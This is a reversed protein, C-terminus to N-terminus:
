SLSRDLQWLGGPTVYGQWEGPVLVVGFVRRYFEDCLASCIEHKTSAIYSRLGPAPIHLRHAAIALYDLFSYPIGTYRSAAATVFRVSCETALVKHYINECWYVTDAPYETIDAVRSGGPEAELIKGDGLCIFAHEYVSFGNGNLWQGIRIGKGVDGGISTLGIMGPQPAVDTM